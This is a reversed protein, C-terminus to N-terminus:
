APAPKGDPNTKKETIYKSFIRGIIFWALYILLVSIVFWFIAGILIEEGSFNRFKLVYERGFLKLLNEPKYAENVYALFSFIPLYRTLLGNLFGELFYNYYVKNLEAQDINKALLKGKERDECKLAEQRLNYYYVFEKQLQKHRKTKFNKTM